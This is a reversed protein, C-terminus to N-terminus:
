DNPAGANIWAAIEAKAAANPALAGEPMNGGAENFWYIPSNAPDLMVSASPSRPNVLQGGVNTNNATLSTYCGAQTACVFNARAASHCGANGCHGASGNAFYTAYIYSWSLKNADTTVDAAGENAADSTPGADSEAGIGGTSASACAALLGM